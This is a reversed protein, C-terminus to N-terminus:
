ELSFFYRAAAAGTIPARYVEVDKGSADTYRGGAAHRQAATKLHGATFDVKATDLAPYHFHAYWLVQGARSISYEDIFDAPRGKVKALRTRSGLAAIRVEGKALLFQVEGMRPKGAVAAEIRLQTAQSAFTQALERLRKAVAEADKGQSAEDTENDQTLREEIDDVMALVRDRQHLVSEEIEVPLYSDSARQLRDVERTTEVILGDSGKLLRKLSLGSPRGPVVVPAVEVWEGQKLHYTQGPTKNDPGPIDVTNEDNARPEALLLGHETTEILGPAKSRLQKLSSVPPYDPLNGLDQAILAQIHQLEDQLQRLTQHPAEGQTLEALNGLQRAAAQFHGQISRLLRVTLEQAPDNLKYLESRQVIGLQFNRWFRDRWYAAEISMGHILTLRNLLGELHLFRLILEKQTTAAPRAVLDRWEVINPHRQSALRALEEQRQRLLTNNDIMQKLLPVLKDLRETAIRIDTANLEEGDHQQQRAIELLQERGPKYRKNLLTGQLLQCCADQYLAFAHVKRFDKVPEIANRAKLHEIHEAWFQSLAQIKSQCQELIADESTAHVLKEVTSMERIRDSLVAKDVKIAENAALMAQEKDLRLKRIQESLPMGGRLGLRLDMQWRGVEDRHLWPGKTRDPGIIRLKQREVWELEYVKSELLTFFRSDRIYLGQLMGTPIPSDLASPEITAQLAKLAANQTANLKRDPRAWGFELRTPPSESTVVLAINAASTAPPAGEAPSQEAEGHGLQLRFISHSLLLLAINLLLNVLNLERGVPNKEADSEVFEALAVEMQALWAVKGLTNGALPLLTNFLLWGLEKWRNWRTQATSASQAEFRQISESVCGEYLAKGPDGVADEISLTVPAPRGFPVASTDELPVFLHPELFGGHAYFRRDEAPLRQLLDDQLAGPTSVAVFLAMRDAFYLLPQQHLPRYLLGGGLGPSDPEILWTNLPHDASSGPAKIFGLPRMIWRTTGQGPGPAFVQTIHGALAPNPLQGRLYLEMALAPLQVRLQEHLQRQRQPRQITDELLQERLMAPYTRGIDLETVLHRLYTEDMWDPLAKGSKSGLTVRGPRLLGLNGIALQAMSFIVPTVKGSTIIADQGAVASATTQYNTVVIDEPALPSQPHDTTLRAALKRNAFAEAEDIGDLWFQGNSDRYQQAVDILRESYQMLSRSTANRLWDPLHESLARRQATETEDCLDILSTLRDLDRNLAIADFRGRYRGALREMLRIQQSLLGLAQVEFVSDTSTAIELQPPASQLSVPLARGLAQLLSQRSPYRFLRGTLTYLLSVNRAPNDDSHEVLVASSLDADLKGAASLDLGMNLAKLGKTNAWRDRQGEAPDDHVMQLIARAYAPLRIAKRQVQQFQDRLYGSYWSWPTEGNIDYRSWYAVLQQLYIDLLLPGAENILREVEHLDIDVRGAPEADTRTTLFDEDVTLNLTDAQCYREVLVQSLPRVWPAKPDPQASALNLALPDHVSSIHRQQWQERLIDDAADLLTPRDSFRRAVKCDLSSFSALRQHLNDNM